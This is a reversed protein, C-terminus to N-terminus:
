AMSHQLQTHELKNRTEKMDIAAEDTVEVLQYTVEPTGGQQV